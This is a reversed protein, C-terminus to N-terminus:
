AGTGDRPATALWGALCVLCAVPDPEEVIRELERRLRGRNLHALMNKAVADRLAEGTEPDLTCHFRTLLRAGRLIRSPDDIFSRKHLVRLRRARLDAYGQYPDVLEGFRGAELAMAMANITFDRHRLDDELTPGRCDSLDLELHGAVVRACGNGEDLPIYAGGVDRAIAQSLELAGRPVAVDVNWRRATRNLLQDRLIGGVLYAPSGQRQLVAQVRTLLAIVEDPIM